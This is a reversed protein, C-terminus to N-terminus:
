FRKAIPNEGYFEPKELFLRSFRRSNRAPRYQLALSWISDSSIFAHLFNKKEKGTHTIVCILGKKEVASFQCLVVTILGHDVQRVPSKFAPDLSIGLLHLLRKLASKGLRLFDEALLTFLVPEIMLGKKGPIILDKDNGLADARGHRGGELLLMAKYSLVDIKSRHFLTKQEHLGPAPDNEVPGRIGPRFRLIDPLATFFQSKREIDCFPGIM